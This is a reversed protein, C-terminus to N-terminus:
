TAPGLTAATPSPRIQLLTRPAAPRASALGAFLFFQLGLDILTGSIAGAILEAICAWRAASQVSAGFWDTWRGDRRVLVILIFVGYGLAGIVGINALVAIPFSSARAGGIGTGFGDTDFFNTLAQDNWATREVGSDSSLKSLVGNQVMDTILSWAPTDLALAIILLSLAVPMGAVFIWTSSTGPRILVHGFSRLYFLGLLAAAGVYATSSTSFVLAILSLLAVPGTVRPYIVRLWLRLCFAFLGLTVSGFASAEPFSGVIRKFGGIATDNLMRYGANRVVSLLPETHTAYTLLDLGAFLLNVIACAIIAKVVAALTRWNSSYSYFLSFCVLEGIFYLTQTINGSTPALPISVLGPGVETRAIAFVDTSGAFLRPFFAASITGYIVTLLLWFGANPYSMARGVLGLQNRDIAARVMLFGLMLHAPTIGVGGLGTLFIAAAAAFITAVVFVYIGVDARLFWSMAGLVIAVFGITQVDM